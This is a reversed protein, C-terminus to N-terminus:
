LGDIHRQTTSLSVGIRHGSLLSLYPNYRRSRRSGIFFNSMNGTALFFFLSRDQYASPELLHLEDESTTAAAM